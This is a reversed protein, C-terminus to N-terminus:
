PTRSLSRPPCSFPIGGGGGTWGWGEYNTELSKREFLALDHRVEMLLSHQLSKDIMHRSNPQGKTLEQMINLQMLVGERKQKEYNHIVYLAHIGDENLSTLGHKGILNQYEKLDFQEEILTGEENFRPITIIRSENKEQLDRSLEMLEAHIHAQYYLDTMVDMSGQSLSIIFRIQDGQYRAYREEYDRDSEGPNQALMTQKAMYARTILYRTQENADEIRNFHEEEWKKYDKGTFIKRFWV